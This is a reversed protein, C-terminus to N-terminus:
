GRFYMTQTVFASIASVERCTQVNGQGTIGVLVLPLHSHLGEPLIKYLLVSANLPVLKNYKGLDQFVM